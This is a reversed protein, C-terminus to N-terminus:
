VRATSEAYLKAPPLNYYVNGTTKLGLKDIGFAPNRIGTETM